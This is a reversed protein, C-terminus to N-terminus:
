LQVCDPQLMFVNRPDLDLARELNRLRRKRIVVQRRREIYAKSSSYGLTM